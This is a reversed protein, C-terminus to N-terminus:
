TRTTTAWRASCRGTPAREPGETVDTSPLDADKTPFTMRGDGHRGVPRREPTRVPYDVRLDGERGPIAPAGIVIFRADVERGAEVIGDAPNAVRGM